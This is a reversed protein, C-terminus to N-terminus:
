GSDRVVSHEIVLVCFIDVARPDTFLRMYKRYTTNTFHCTLLIYSTTLLQHTVRRTQEPMVIQIVIKVVFCSKM